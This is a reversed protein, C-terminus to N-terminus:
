MGAPPMNALWGSSILILLMFLAEARVWRQMITTHNHSWGDRAKLLFRVRTGHGLAILVFSLKLLLMCGWASHSLLRLSGGLGKWSNYLGSLVVIAFAFTVTLSLRRGFQEVENEEERSALMPLTALGAVLIGGCWIAISSLHLFQMAERLTFDGDAAAHGWLARSAIFGADIGLGILINRMRELSSRFFSFLLFCPVFCLSLVMSRGSHTAAVYPLWHWADIWSGDGTMSASLLLFQFPLNVLLITSSAWLCVRLRHNCTEVRGLWLRNLLVGSLTAYAVDSLIQTFTRLVPFLGLM